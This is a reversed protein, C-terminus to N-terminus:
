SQMYPMLDGAIPASSRLTRTADRPAVGPLLEGCLRVVACAPDPSTTCVFRGLKQQDHQDNEEEAMEKPRGTGRLHEKKM